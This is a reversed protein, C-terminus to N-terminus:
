QDLEFILSLTITSIKTIIEGSLVHVFHTSWLNIITRPHGIRAKGMQLHKGVCHLESLKKAPVQAM